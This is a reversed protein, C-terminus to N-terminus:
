GFLGHVFWDARGVADVQHEGNGSDYGATDYLGKRFLWYRQGQEDEVRYYDRTEAALDVGNATGV